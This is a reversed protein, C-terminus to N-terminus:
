RGGDMPDPNSPEGSPPPDHPTALGAPAPTARSATTALESLIRDFERDFEALYGAVSPTELRGCVGDVAAEVVGTPAPAEPAGTRVDRRLLTRAVRWTALGLGRLGGLVAAISSSFMVPSVRDLTADFAARIITAQGRLLEPTQGEPLWGQALSRAVAHGLLYTSATRQSLGRIARVLGVVKRIPYLLIKLPIFVIVELAVRLCGPGQYLPSVWRAPFTRQASRLAVLVMHRLLQQPVLDDVVPFPIFGAAAVLVAYVVLTRQSIREPRPPGFGTRVLPATAGNGENTVMDRFPM